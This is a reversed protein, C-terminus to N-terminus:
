PVYGAPYLIYPIRGDPFNHTGARQEEVESASSNPYSTSPAGFYCFKAKQLASVDSYDAYRLYHGSVMFGAANKTAPVITTLLNATFTVVQGLVSEIEALEVVLETAVDVIAIKYGPVWAKGVYTATRNEADIGDVDELTVSDPGSATIIGTPAIYGVTGLNTLVILDDEGGVVPGVPVFNGFRTTGLSWLKMKLTMDDLDFNIQRVFAPIMDFRRGGRFKGTSCDFEPAFNIRFFDCLQTFLRRWTLTVDVFEPEAAALRVFLPMLIDMDSRRYVWDLTFKKSIEKGDAMAIAAPSVYTDSDTYTAAFPFKAYQAYASNFYQNYEKNPAFSDLKIDGERILEGDDKFATFAIHFLAYRGFRIYLVSNFQQLFKNMATIINTKEDLYLRARFQSLLDRSTQNWSLDFDTIVKGTFSQIIDRAIFGPNYQSDTFENYNRVTRDARNLFFVTGDQAISVGVVFTMDPSIETLMDFSSIPAGTTNDIRYFKGTQRDVLSLQALNVDASMDLTEVAAADFVTRNWSAILTPAPSAFPNIKYFQGTSNDVIYLQNGTDITLGAGATLASLLGIVNTTPFSLGLENSDLLYRFISSTPSDFLWLTNDTQISVGTVQTISPDIDSYNITRLVVNLFDVQYIKQVSDDAFWYTGDLGVSLGYPVSTGLGADSLRNLSINKVSKGICKVSFKDSKRYSYQTTIVTYEDGPAFTIGGTLQLQNNTVVSITARESTSTRIAIDGAKVGKTIFNTTPKDSTILDTTSGVGASGKDFVVYLDELVDVLNAPIAFEGNALDKTIFADAFKIPGDPSDAKREGRYLYIDGIFSLANASIKFTYSDPNSELANLCYAPVQGFDGVNETWDGYVLPVGKGSVGEQIDPFNIENFQLPPLPIEDNDFKDYCKVTVTDETTTIGQKATVFGTFLEFYNSRKSGIGVLVVVMANTWQTYKVGQPLWPNFYGDRNNLVFKLDGIEFNPNLWEGATVTMAPGKAIRAEYFRPDGNEDEIYLNKNSVRFLDDKLHVEIAWNLEIDPYSADLLKQDLVAGAVNWPERSVPPPFFVPVLIGASINSGAPGGAVFNFDGVFNLWGVQNGTYFYRTSGRDECASM